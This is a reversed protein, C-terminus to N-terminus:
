RTLIQQLKAGHRAARLRDSLDRSDAAQRVLWELEAVAEPYFEQREYWGAAATRIPQDDPNEKVARDWMRKVETPQDLEDGAAAVANLEGLTLNRREVAALARALFPHREDGTRARGPFLEDAAAVMVAPDDPLVTDRLQEPPFGAASRVIAKLTAPNLELARRWNTTAAAVDGGRLAAAGCAFWIDGDSPLLRKARELHTLPPESEAFFSAYVGLRAHIRPELPCLNRATRLARLAPLIHREVTETPFGDSTRAAAAADSHAQALEYWVTSSTPSVRTRQTLYDIRKEFREASDSVEVRQAAVLLRETRYRARADVAAFVATITLLAPFLWPAVSNDEKSQSPIPRPSDKRRRQTSYDTDTAIGYAYGAVVATLLAIAPVHIAFDTVAHLALMALGFWAGLLLGGTSRERLKRYGRAVGWLVGGVLVITLGFRILGGEVVAELFENHAHDYVVGPSETTRGLPEVWQFTGSGSGALWFGLWQKAGAKWLPTRDDANRDSFTSEFREQIPTTGKWLLVALVVATALTLAWGTAGGATSNRWRALVWTFIIAGMMALLGGRSLSFPISVLMFGVALATALVKPQELLVVPATVLDIVQDLVTPDPSTEQLKKREKERKEDRTLMLGVALGVCPALFDPFHNRCVFPGYGVVGNDFTWYMLHRASSFFQALALTALAVGNALAVWALRRFAARNALWNRAAAYVVFVALVKAAFTRTAFPDVSLPIFNSRSVASPEGPLREMQAPVLSTHLEARAPAILRVLGVPLPVLQFVSLLIFGALCGSVLDPRFRFRRTVIAHAAWLGALVAVTVAAIYEWGTGACGFPWASITALIM